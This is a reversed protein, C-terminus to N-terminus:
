VLRSGLMRAGAQGAVVEAAKFESGRGIEVKGTEGLEVVGFAYHVM